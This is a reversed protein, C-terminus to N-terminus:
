ETVDDTDEETGDDTVAWIDDDSSAWADDEDADGANIVIDEEIVHVGLGRLRSLAAPYNGRIAQKHVRSEVRGHLLACASPGVSMMWDEVHTGMHEIGDLDVGGNMIFTNEKYFIKLAHTRMNKTTGLLALFNALSEPVHRSNEYISVEHRRSRPHDILFENGLPDLMVVFNYSRDEPHYIITLTENFKLVYRFIKILLETPLNQFRTSGNNKSPDQAKHTTYEVLSPTLAGWLHDKFIIYESDVGRMFLGWYSDWGCLKFHQPDDYNYHASDLIMPIEDRDEPSLHQRLYHLGCLHSLTCNIRHLLSYESILGDQRYNRIEFIALKQKANLNRGCNVVLETYMPTGCTLAQRVFTPGPTDHDDSCIGWPALEVKGQSSYMWIYFYTGSSYKEIATTPHPLIHHLHVNNWYKVAEAVGPLNMNPHVKDLSKDLHMEDLIKDLQIKELSKNSNEEELSTNPCPKEKVYYLTAANDEVYQVLEVDSHFGMVEALTKVMKKNDSTEEIAERLERM